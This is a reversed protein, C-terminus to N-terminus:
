AAILHRARRVSSVRSAHRLRGTRRGGFADTADAWAMALLLAYEASQHCARASPEIQRTARSAGDPASDLWFPYDPRRTPAHAWPRSTREHRIASTARICAYTTLHIFPRQSSAAETWELNALWRQCQDSGYGGSRSKTLHRPNNSSNPTKPFTMHLCCSADPIEIGFIHGDKWDFAFCDETGPPNPAPLTPRGRHAPWRHPLHLGADAAPDHTIRM